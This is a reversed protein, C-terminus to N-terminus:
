TQGGESEAEPNWEPPSGTEGYLLRSVLSSRRVTHLLTHLPGAAPSDWFLRAFVGNRFGILSLWDLFARKMTFRRGLFPDLATNLAVKDLSDPFMGERRALRFHRIAATDIGMVACCVANAAGAGDGAILLNMRVADGFMPGTRDLFHAGDFVVLRPKLLRNIALIKHDFQPHERLRMTSPLCGWQNKFALSVGTMVHVKPVPMTIFVDTEHLL